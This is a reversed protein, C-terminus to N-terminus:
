RTSGINNNLENKLYNLMEQENEQMQNWRDAVNQTYDIIRDGIISSITVTALILLVVITIILAVLTIGNQKKM